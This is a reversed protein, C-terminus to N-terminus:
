VLRQGRMAKMTKAASAAFLAAKLLALQISDAVGDASADLVDYSRQLGEHAADLDDEGSLPRREGPLADLVRLRDWAWRAVSNAWPAAFKEKRRRERAQAPPRRGMAAASEPLLAALDFARLGWLNASQAPALHGLENASYSPELIIEEDALGIPHADTYGAGAHRCRPSALWATLGGSPGPDALWALFRGTQAAVLRVAPSANDLAPADRRAAVELGERQALAWANIGFLARAWPFQMFAKNSPGLGDVFAALATPLVGGTAWDDETSNDRWLQMVLLMAGLQSVAGRCRRVAEALPVEDGRGM